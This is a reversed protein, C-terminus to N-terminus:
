YRYNASVRKKVFHIQNRDSCHLMSKIHCKLSVSNRLIDWWVHFMRKMMYIGENSANEKLFIVSFISFFVTQSRVYHINKCYCIQLFTCKDRYIGHLCILPASTDCLWCVTFWYKFYLLILPFFPIYFPLYPIHSIHINM